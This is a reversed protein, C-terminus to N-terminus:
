KRKTLELLMRNTKRRYIVRIKFAHTHTQTFECSHQITREDEPPSLMLGGHLLGAIAHLFVLWVSVCDSVAHVPFVM